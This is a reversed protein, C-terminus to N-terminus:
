SGDVGGPAQSELEALRELTHTIVGRTAELAERDASSLEHGAGNVERGVAQYQAAEVQVAERNHQAVKRYADRVPKHFRGGFARLETERANWVSQSPAESPLWWEGQEVATGVRDGAEELETALSLALDRANTAVPMASGGRLHVLVAVGTFAIATCGAGIWVAKPANLGKAAATGLSLAVALFWLVTPTPRKLFRNVGADNRSRRGDARNTTGGPLV